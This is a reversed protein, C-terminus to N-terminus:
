AGGTLWDRILAVLSSTDRTGFVDPWEATARSVMQEAVLQATDSANRRCESQFREVGQALSREIYQRLAREHDDYSNM